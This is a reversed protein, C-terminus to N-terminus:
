HPLTLSLGDMFEVIQQSLKTRIRIEKNAIQNEDNRNDQGFLSEITTNETLADIQQQSEDVLNRINTKQEYKELIVKYYTAANMIDKYAQAHKVYYLMNAECIYLIDDESPRKTIGFKNKFEDKMIHIEFTDFFDLNFQNIILSEVPFKNDPVIVKINKM